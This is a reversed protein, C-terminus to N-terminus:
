FRNTVNFLFRLGNEDAYKPPSSPNRTLPYAITAGFSLKDDWLFRAGVGTSAGSIKNKDTPDINWVRGIDYFAFPQINLRYRPVSTNYRVEVSASIGHDGTVESPDYGRGIGMGGFGFEESSLLPSSSYQGQMQAYIDFNRSVSQLRSVSAEAKKFESHGDDRSLNSEGTKTANMVNLGQTYKLRAFNLGKFRDTTDYSAEVEITRIKDNAVLSDLIDTESDKYNFGAGIILNEARQRIIPYEIGTRVYLSQGIVDISDLSAGPETRATSGSLKWNMGSVGFIPLTYDFGIQRLEQISTTVKTTLALDSVNIGTDNIVLGASVQGTGTYNSGYNDVAIQGSVRKKDEPKIGNQLILKIEGSSPANGDPRALVSVVDLAPRDNLVLMMRELSKANLPKMAMMKQVFDDVMASKPISPDVDVQGVFGEVVDFVIHGGEISQPPMSIKSLTYGENIYLQQVSKLIEFLQSLSITKGIHDKYLAAVQSSPFATAGKITLSHLSFTLGALEPSLDPTRASLLKEQEITHQGLSPVPQLLVRSPDASPPITQARAVSWVGGIGLSSAGLSVGM